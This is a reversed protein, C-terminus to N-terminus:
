HSLCVEEGNKLDLKTRLHTGSVLEVLSEPYKEGEFRMAYARQGEVDVPYFRCWRPAWASGLGNKRDVVDGIQARFYKRNWHFGDPSSLNLSGCVPYFGLAIDIERARREDAYAFAKSAGGAGDKVVAFTHAHVNKPTCRWVVRPAVWGEGVVEIEFYREAAARIAQANYGGHLASPIDKMAVGDAISLPNEWLLEGNPSTNQHLWFWISEHDGGTVAYVHHYLNLMLVLDFSGLVNWQRGLEMGYFECQPLAKRNLAVLDTPVGKVPRGRDVGVVREAGREKALACFAGHDCGVDLVTKGTLDAPIPVARLKREMRQRTQYEGALFM